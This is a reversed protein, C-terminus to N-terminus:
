RIFCCGAAQMAVRRKTMGKKVKMEQNAKGNGEVFPELM